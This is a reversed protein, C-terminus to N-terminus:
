QPMPESQVAERLHEGLTMRTHQFPDDPEAM